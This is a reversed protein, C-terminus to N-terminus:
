TRGKTHPIEKVSPRGQNEGALCLLLGIFSVPILIVAQQIGFADSVWGLAWSAFAFGPIGACSLLIFLSTSEVPLRDAAYSQISPWFCAIALGAFFLALLALAMSNAFPLAISVMTGLAASWGIFAPLKHQPIFAGGGFRGVIMGLAFVATGIGGLFATSGHHLQLYTATWFTYAGEAAGGFFMMGFFWWFPRCRLIEVKHGIVDRMSHRQLHPARKAFALFVTGACLSLVGCILILGRWSHGASLWYGASVTTMLVGISWFGNIANLYRGSDNPHLDQVLPNILAEIIGAGIGAMGTAVLILGYSPALGYMLLGLAVVLCSLGLALAKGFRAAVIGSFLLSIVILAGRVAEIGGAASLSLGLDTCIALLCIPTITASSSYALFGIASATDLPHIRSSTASDSEM